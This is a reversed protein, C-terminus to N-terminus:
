LPKVESWTKSMLLLPKVPANLALSIWAATPEEATPEEACRLFRTCGLIDRLEPMDLTGSRMGGFNWM